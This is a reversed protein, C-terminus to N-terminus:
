LRAGRSAPTTAPESFYKGKGFMNGLFFKSEPQTLQTLSLPNSNKNGDDEGPPMLGYMMAGSQLASGIAQSNTNKTQRNALFSGTGMIAPLILSELGM